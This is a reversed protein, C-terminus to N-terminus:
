SVVDVGFHFLYNGDTKTEDILGEFTVEVVRQEDVKYALDGIATAVARYITLDKTHNDAGLATPHLILEKAFQGLLTGASRGGKLKKTVAGEELTTAPMAIALNDLTDEALPVKVSIKEGASSKNIPTKGYKDVVMDNIEETYSVVVGDKTHGLDDGDFSVTCVGMSVNELNM